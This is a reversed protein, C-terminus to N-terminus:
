PDARERTRCDRRKNAACDLRGYREVATRVLGEAAEDSTVDAYVFTVEGTEKIASVTEEGGEANVDSVVVTAGERAMAFATARGIGAAGGTVLAVKDDLMGAM